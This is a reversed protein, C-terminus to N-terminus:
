NVSFGASGKHPNTQSMNLKFCSPYYIGYSTQINGPRQSQKQGQRQGPM